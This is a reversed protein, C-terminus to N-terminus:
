LATVIRLEPTKVSLETTGIALWPRNLSRASRTRMQIMRETPNWRKGIFQPFEIKGSGASM